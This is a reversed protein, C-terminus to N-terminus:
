NISSKEEDSESANNNMGTGFLLNLNYPHVPFPAFCLRKQGRGVSFGAVGTRTQMEAEVIVSLRVRRGQGGCISQVFISAVIFCLFICILFLLM